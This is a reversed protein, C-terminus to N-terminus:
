IILYNFSQSKLQLKSKQSKGKSNTNEIRIIRLNPYM